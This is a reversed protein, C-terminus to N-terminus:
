LRAKVWILSGQEDAGTFNDRAQGLDQLTLFLWYIFGFCFTNSVSQGLSFGRWIVKSQNSILTCFLLSNWYLQEVQGM